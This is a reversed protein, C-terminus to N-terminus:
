FFRQSAIRPAMIFELISSPNAGVRQRFQGLHDLEFAALGAEILPLLRSRLADQSCQMVHGHRTEDLLSQNESSEYSVFAFARGVLYEFSDAMDFIVHEFDEPLFCRIGGLQAPEVQRELLCILPEPIQPV